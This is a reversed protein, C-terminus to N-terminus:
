PAAQQLCQLTAANLEHKGAFYILEPEVGLRQLFAQQKALEAASIFEDQDGCVLVIPFQHVLHTAVTFDMDAPFAGAWLILRLPRFHARALWRSVTAAGQSFGLVTVRVDAACAALTTDALQNLFAIYDEIEALRDERTMWTAGIRGGTGNLYFRSLGEPAVVVTEPHHRTLIHFHRIFYGALQGYGHCVFWVHRTAATLQGSQYYRATRSVTLQHEESEPM